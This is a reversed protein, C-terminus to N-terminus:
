SLFEVLSDAVQKGFDGEVLLYHTAGEIPVLKAQPIYGRIKGAETFPM